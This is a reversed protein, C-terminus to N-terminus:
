NAAAPKGYTDRLVNKLVKGMANRPLETVFHVHKPVKYSAMQAKLSQIISQDNIGDHGPEGTTPALVVVANVAEGFDRDPVGIVASELVGPLADIAMEVEKPYVNYGGSIVLDKARGVITLYGDDSLTGLDGTRFWGDASFEDATKQPNRWYGKMVGSGRIQIGGVTDFGLPLDDADAIRVEVGEIAPGVSGIRREGSCPNSSIIASETMGYRELVVHGCRQLFASNTEALLPASGSIFLRMAAASAATFDSQGLLRSYFTPVGVMVTARSLLGVVQAADFKKLLLISSGSLLTCHSSIFLGHAHFLPLAHLLVDERTFQWLKTLARGNSLLNAHTLMAGKPRGTTGSTYIILAVDDAATHVTDFETTATACQNLYDIFSGRNDDGLSLSHAVGNAAALPALTALNTPSCIFVHPAADQMFYQLENPHYATNLPLYIAGLRLTALYLCFNELSKDVQVAVREGATVGLARLANAYRATLALMAGYTLRQGEPTEICTADPHQRAIDEFNAFINANMITSLSTSVTDAVGLAPYRIPDIDASADVRDPHALIESLAAPPLTRVSGTASVNVSSAAGATAIYIGGSIDGEIHLHVPQGARVRRRITRALHMLYQSLLLREDALLASHGNSALHLHLPGTGAADVLQALQLADACGTPAHTAARLASGELTVTASGGLGVVDLREQLQWREDDIDPATHEVTTKGVWHQMAAAYTKAADDLLQERGGWHSRASGKIVALVEEVSHVTPDSQQVVRPGTMALLTAPSYCRRAAAHAIMSAGGFVNRGLLALMPMGDLRADLLETMLQRLAGQIALGEYLQAGASDLILLLVAGSSQALRIARRLDQCEALGLAGKDAIPDTAVALVTRGAARGHMMRLHSASPLPVRCDPPFLAALRADVPMGIFSAQSM